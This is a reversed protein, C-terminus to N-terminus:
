CNVVIFNFSAVVQYSFVFAAFKRCMSFVLDLELYINYQIPIDASQDEKFPPIDSVIPCLKIM